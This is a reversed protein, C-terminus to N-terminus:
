LTSGPALPIDKVRWGGMLLRLVTCKKTMKFAVFHWGQPPAVKEELIQAYKICKTYICVNLPTM